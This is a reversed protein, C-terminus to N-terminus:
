PSAAGSYGRVRGRSASRQPRIKKSERVPLPAAFRQAIWLELLLMGTAFWMLAASIEISGPTALAPSENEYLWRLPRGVASAIASPESAQLASERPDINVAFDHVTDGVVLSAPGSSKMPGFQAALGDGAPVVSPQASLGDGWNIKLTMSSEGPKLPELISEGVLLNRHQGQQSPLAGMIKAMVAVFDGRGPLNNWEMNASTTWLAIRGAGRRSLILAPAGNSYRLPIETAQQIDEMGFYRDVRASFLGSSHHGAFDEFLLSGDSGLQFGVRAGIETAEHVRDLRAPLLGNGEAFGYRNYIDVNVMGGLAIFVGGGGSAFRELATWQEASLRPVNCLAVVDYAHLAEAGLEPESIVKVEYLNGPSRGWGSSQRQTNEDRPALSVALYGAQGDILRAGPQGDVILLPISDRAVLSLWRVDDLPLADPGSSGIRAELLKSGPSSLGTTFVLSSSEGPAIPPLEERRIAQSERRLQLAAGRVTVTGFNTVRVVFSAPVQVSLQTSEPRFETVALNEVTGPDIRTLILNAEPRGLMDAVESLKRAAASAQGETENQWVQQPFDSILYVARNNPPADSEALLKKLSELATVMDDVVQTPQVASLTEKAIRRDYTPSQILFEAPTSTTMLSVGDGPPFSALLKQAMGLAADFRTRGDGRSAQMSLSNDLLLIRHVRSGLGMPAASSFYPRAVALGMMVMLAVRAALLLFHELRVRRASRRNAAILFAMAAWPVKQFRRRNILHILIPILAAGMAVAAIGPHVFPWAQAPPFPVTMM